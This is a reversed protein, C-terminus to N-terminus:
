FLPAIARGWTAVRTTSEPINFFFEGVKLPEGVLKGGFTKVFEALHDAAACYNAYAHDGVGFVACCKKELSVGKLRDIFDHFHQPLQGDITKGDKNTWQWTCSGFVLADYAKMDGRGAETVSKLAARHGHENLVDRVVKAAEYTSGSNTAYIILINMM